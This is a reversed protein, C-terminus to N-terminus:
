RVEFLDLDGWPVRDARSDRHLQASLVGQPTEAEAPRRQGVPFRAGATPSPLLSAAGAGM